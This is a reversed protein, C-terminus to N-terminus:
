VGDFLCVYTNVLDHINHFSTVHFAFFHLNNITKVKSFQWILTIIKSSYFQWLLTIFFILICINTQKITNLAVLLIKTTVQITANLKISPPFRLVRFLGGVQQLNSVTVFKIVYHQVARGSRSEFGCCWTNKIVCCFRFFLTWFKKFKM